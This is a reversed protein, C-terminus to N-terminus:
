KSTVISFSIDEIEKHKKIFSNLESLTLAEIKKLQEREYGLSQNNYYKSLTNLSLQRLGPLTTEVKSISESINAITHQNLL